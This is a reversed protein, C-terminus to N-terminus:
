MITELGSFIGLVDRWCKFGSIFKFDVLLTSFPLFLDFGLGDSKVNRYVFRPRLAQVEINWTM